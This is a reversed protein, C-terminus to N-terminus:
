DPRRAVVLLTDSQEPQFPPFDLGGFAEPGGLGADTMAAALDDPRWPRLTTSQLDHVPPGAHPWRIKLINFRVLDELFDYFRVFQRQGDDSRTVGVVRQRDAGIRAYNLLHIALLGGPALRAAVGDFFSALDDNNLLHPVSNGMCVALDFPGAIEPPLNEMPAEHLTVSLGEDRSRRCALSLMGSSIDVGTVDMGARALAVSYLGAGCALDLARGGDARSAMARAFRDVTEARAAEDVVDTYHEAMADYVDM